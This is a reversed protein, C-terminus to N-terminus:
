ALSELATRKAWPYDAKGVPSRVVHDVIVVSKPLKYAAVKGRCHETISEDSPTAGENPQVVACVREGWREDPLGVVVCDYVDPHSKIASEVEEPYVKEGGTNISVSGRGLLNISGDEDVTAADGTIV